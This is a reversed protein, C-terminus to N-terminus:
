VNKGRLKFLYFIMKERQLQLPSMLLLYHMPGDLGATDGWPPAQTKRRERLRARESKERVVRVTSELIDETTSVADDCRRTDAAFALAEAASVM